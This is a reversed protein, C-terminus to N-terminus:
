LVSRKGTMKNITSNIKELQEKVIQRDMSCRWNTRFRVIIKTRFRVITLICFLAAKFPLRLIIFFRKKLIIDAASPNPSRSTLLNALAFELQM